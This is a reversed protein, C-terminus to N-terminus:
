GANHRIRVYSDLADRPLEYVLGNMNCKADAVDGSKAKTDNKSSEKWM